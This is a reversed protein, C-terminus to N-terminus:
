CLGKRIKEAVDQCRGETRRSKKPSVVENEVEGDDGDIEPIYNRDNANSDPLPVGTCSTFGTLM